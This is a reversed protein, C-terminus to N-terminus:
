DDLDINFPDFRVREDIVEKKDKIVADILDKWYDIADNSRYKDLDDKEDWYNHENIVVYFIRNIIYFIDDKMKEDTLEEESLYEVLDYVCDIFDYNTMKIM